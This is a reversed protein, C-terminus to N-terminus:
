GVQYFRVQIHKAGGILNWLYLYSTGPYTQSLDNLFDFIWMETMGDPLTVGLTAAEAATVYFMNHGDQWNPKKSHTVSVEGLKLLYTSDTANYIWGELTATMGPKGLAVFYVEYKGPAITLNCHGDDFMNPDAVAFEDAQNVWITANSYGSSTEWAAVDEPVFMSRRSADYDPAGNYDAKKGLINLLYSPAGWLKNPNNNGAALALVTSSLAITALALAAISLIKKRM